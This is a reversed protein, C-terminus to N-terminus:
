TNTSNDANDKKKTKKESKEKEKNEKDQERKKAFIQKKQKIVNRVSQVTENDKLSDLAELL